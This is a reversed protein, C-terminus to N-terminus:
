KHKCDIAKGAPGSRRPLGRVVHARYSKPMAMPKAPLSCASAFKHASVGPAFADHCDATWVYQLLASQNRHTHQKKTQKKESATTHKTSSAETQRQKARRALLQRCSKNALPLPRLIEGKILEHWM